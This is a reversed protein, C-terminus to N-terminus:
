DFKDGKIRGQFLRRGEEVYNEVVMKIGFVELDRNGVM